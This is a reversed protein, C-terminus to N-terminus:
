PRTGKEHRHKVGLRMEVLVWNSVFREYDTTAGEHLVDIAEGSLQENKELKQLVDAALDCAVTLREGEAVPGLSPNTYKTLALVFIETVNTTDCSELRRSTEQGPRVLYITTVTPDLKAEDPFYIVPRVQDPQYVTGTYNVGLATVLADIVAKTKSAM